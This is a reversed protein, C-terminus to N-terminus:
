TPKDKIIKKKAIYKKQVVIQKERVKRKVDYDKIGSLRSKLTEIANEFGGNQAIYDKFDKRRRDPIIGLYKQIDKKLVKTLKM